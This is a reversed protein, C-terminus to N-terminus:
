DKWDLVTELQLSLVAYRRHRARATANGPTCQQPPPAIRLWGVMNPELKSLRFGRWVAVHLKYSRSKHVHELNPGELPAKSAGQFAVAAAGAALVASGAMFIPTSVKAAAAALPEISQKEAFQNKFRTTRAQMAIAIAPERIGLLRV